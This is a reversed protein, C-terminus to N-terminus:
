LTYSFWRFSLMTTPNKKVFNGDYAIIFTSCKLTSTVNQLISVYLDDSNCLNIDSGDRFMDLEYNLSSSGEIFGLLVLQSRLTHVMRAGM